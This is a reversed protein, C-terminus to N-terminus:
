NPSINQQSKRGRNQPRRAIYDLLRQAQQRDLPWNDPFPESLTRKSLHRMHYHIRGVSVNAQQALEEASWMLPEDPVVIRAISKEM